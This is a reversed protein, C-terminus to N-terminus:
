VKSVLALGVTMGSVFCAACAIIWIGIEAM